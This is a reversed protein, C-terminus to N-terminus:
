DAWEKQIFKQIDDARLLVAAKDWKKKEIGLGVEITGRLGSQVYVSAKEKPPRDKLSSNIGPALMTLNGLHHIYEEGSSQPQVHEISKSQDVQWIKAWQLSNIKEGAKDALFEDYRFLIYRLEEAWNYYCENWDVDKMAADIKCSEGLTELSKQVEKESILGLGVDYGLRVYGGVKSRSDAGGLGFIRFTIREWLGLLRKETQEPFKRLLISVALFRAHGIQTVASLRVNSDLKAVAVVVLKLRNAVQSISHLETGAANTLVSAAVSQGVLKNPRTPSKWTGTFSLAEDGLEGRMGLTRYIDQWVVQMEKLAESRTGSDINTFILAMLQSKLKDIWKVDLGRSNLVEFVRYVSAEDNLEHYILSLRNRLLAVLDILTAKSKWKEVFDECERAAAILNRDAATEPEDRRITGQRVYDTFVSSSDHNTQLLVLSHDDGKVLLEGIERKIKAEGSVDPSLAKELAKLLIVFTTLRQQGDVM